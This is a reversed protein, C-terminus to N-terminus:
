SGAGKVVEDPKPITSTSAVEGTRWAGEVQAERPATYILPASQEPNASPTRVGGPRLKRGGRSPYGSDTPFATTVGYFPEGKKKRLEVVAIKSGGNRKVLMIRGDPQEWIENYHKSVDEIFSVVSKYGEEKIKQGHKIEIKAQGYLKNGVQLKIPITGKGEIVEGFNLTGDSAKVFAIEKLRALPNIGAAGSQKSM